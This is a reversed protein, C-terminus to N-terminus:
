WLHNAIADIVWVVGGILLVVAYIGLYLELALILITTM